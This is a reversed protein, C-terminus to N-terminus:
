VDDEDSKMGELDELLDIAIEETMSKNDINQVAEEFYACVDQMYKLEDQNHKSNDKKVEGELEKINEKVEPIVENKLLEELQKIKSM